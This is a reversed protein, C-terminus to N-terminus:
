ICYLISFGYSKSNNKNIQEIDNNFIYSLIFNILHKELNHNKQLNKLYTPLCIIKSYFPFINTQAELKDNM